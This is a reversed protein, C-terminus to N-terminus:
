GRVARVALHICVCTLLFPLFLVFGDQGVLFALPLYRL